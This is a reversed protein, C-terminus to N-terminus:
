IPKQITESYYIDRGINVCEFKGPIPIMRRLLSERYPFFHFHPNFTYIYERERPVVVILTGACIRRLEALAASFDLIHEMVHTCVVTDFHRDPFPLDEILAEVYEIGDQREQPLILDVGVLREPEIERGASIRQLLYGTGCGVDCISSGVIDRRIRQICQESNDTLEQVRPHKEYVSRYEAASLFPARRRFEALDDVHHGWFLRFIWRFIFSDRLIPPFLDELVFRIRNVTERKM